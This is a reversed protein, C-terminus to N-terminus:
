LQGQHQQAMVSHSAGSFPPPPATSAPYSFPPPMVETAPGMGSQTQQERNSEMTSNNFSTETRNGRGIEEIETM